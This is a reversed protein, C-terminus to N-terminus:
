AFLAGLHERMFTKEAEVPLLALAEAPSFWGVHTFGAEPPPHLQGDDLAYALYFHITKQEVDGNRKISERPITGLHKILRVRQLGTEEYIERLAAQELTEGNEVHGKPLVWRNNPRMHQALAVKLEGDVERLIIAGASTAPILAM